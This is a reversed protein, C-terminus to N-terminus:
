SAPPLSKRSERRDFANQAKNSRRQAQKVSSGLASCPRGVLQRRLRALETKQIEIHRAEHRASQKLVKKWWQLLAADVRNPKTWRPLHVTSTLTWTVGAITCSETSGSQSTQIRWSMNVCALAQHIGCRPRARKLTQKLLTSATRGEIDFYRIKTAGPVKATLKRPLRVRGDAAPKSTGPRKSTPEADKGSPTTPATPTPAPSAAPVPSPTPTPAPTALADALSRCTAYASLDASPDICRAVLLAMADAGLLADPDLQAGALWDELSSCARIAEDLREPDAGDVATPPGEDITAPATAPATPVATPEAPLGLQREAEIFAQSCIPNAVPLLSAAPLASTSVSPADESASVPGALVLVALLLLSFTPLTRM